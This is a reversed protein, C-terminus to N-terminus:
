ATEELYKIALRLMDTDHHFNGIGTNCRQCLLGRVKGTVADHDVALAKPQTYSSKKLATEPKGCIKCVGNQEAYM